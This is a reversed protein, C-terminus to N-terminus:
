VPMEKICPACWNAFFNLVLIKKKDKSDKKGVFDGLWVLNSLKGKEVDVKRMGFDVMKDGKKLGESKPETASLFFSVTTLFVFVTLLRIMKMMNGKSKMIKKWKLM